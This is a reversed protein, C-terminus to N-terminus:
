KQAAASPELEIISGDAMTALFLHGDELRYGRVWPFQAMYRDHLSGPPCLAQTAAITGFTLQGASESTWSGTGANCDAQIRVGDDAGFTLTYSNPDDPTDTSDDMSLIKVLRWSTGALEPAASAPSAEPAAVPPAPATEPAGERGTSASRERSCSPLGALACALLLRTLPSSAQM